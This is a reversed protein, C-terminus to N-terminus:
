ILSRATAANAIATLSGVVSALLRHADEITQDVEAPTPPRNAKTAEKVGSFLALVEDYTLMM